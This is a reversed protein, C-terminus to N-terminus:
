KLRKKKVESILPQVQKRKALVNGSASGDGSCHRDGMESPNFHKSRASYSAHMPSGTVTSNPHDLTSMFIWINVHTKELLFHPLSQCDMRIVNAVTAISMEDSKVSSEFVGTATRHVPTLDMNPIGCVRSYKTLEWNYV